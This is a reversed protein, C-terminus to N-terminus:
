QLSADLDGLTAQATYSKGDRVYDIEVSAGAPHTRVQATLDTKNTIPVGDLSVVIDGVELGAKEAAGGSVLEVISAGIVTADRQAPDDAVDAVSAGLLGHTATGSEIIDSTIRKVINSPIAFGVGISGNSDSGGTAIAVNIGILNGKADLLAGGSNGPNIATDTQIVALQITSSASQQQQPVGPIDFNFFDFPDSGEDGDGQDGGDGQEEDGGEPAASSAVEISRDLSSVIGSTVTGALGLPAGIAITTAGVNVQSSDAFEIPVLGEADEVQIVALDMLPDTGVVTATYIRGSSTTVKIEPSSESGDLTVVHTNTVIHGEDDLVVGSGTGSGQQGTVSITVVSAMAQAAVASVLTADDYDTVTITQPGAAPGTSQQGNQAVLAAVGAGSAGGLVAGVLLGGLAVPIWTRRRRGTTDETRPQAFAPPADAAPVENSAYASSSATLPEVVPEHVIEGTVTEIPEEDPEPTQPNESDNM